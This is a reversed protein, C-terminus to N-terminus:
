RAEAICRVLDAAYGSWGGLTKIRQGAMYALQKQLEDSEALREFAEVLAQSSRTPVLLGDRDHKFITDFGTHESAIIPCGCAAAQTMVLGFGDEVSPLVLANCSSMYEKVKSRRVPGVFTVGECGIRRILDRVEEPVHGVVILEKRPHRFQQFARLLYPAGKRVSFNGVFLVRFSNPPPTGVRQFEEFSAGYPVVRLKDPDTGMLVFTRKSFESPVTIVDAERAEEEENEILFPHDPQFTLGWTQYEEMLLQNVYRIQSSGRDMVYIGGRSKALRGASLGSGSIGIYAECEPLRKAVWSSYRKTQEVALKTDIARSYWPCRSM